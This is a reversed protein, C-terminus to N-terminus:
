RLNIGKEGLETQDGNPLIQLDPLLESIKLVKNYKEADFPKGFLINDRVSANQIWASQSVYAISGNM